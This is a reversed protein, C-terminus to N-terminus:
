KLAAAIDAILKVAGDADGDAVHRVMASGVVVADAHAAVAKAM